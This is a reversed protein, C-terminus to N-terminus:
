WLYKSYPNNSTQPDDVSPFADEVYLLWLFVLHGFAPDSYINSDM